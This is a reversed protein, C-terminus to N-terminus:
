PRPDTQCVYDRRESGETLDVEEDYGAVPTMGVLDWAIFAEVPTGYGADV